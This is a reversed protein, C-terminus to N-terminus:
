CSVYWNLLLAIHLFLEDKIPQLQRTTGSVSAHTKRFSSEFGTSQCRNRCFVASLVWFMTIKRSTCKKGGSTAYVSGSCMYIVEWTCSKRWIEGMPILQRLREPFFFSKPFIDSIPDTIWFIDRELHIEGYLNTCLCLCLLQTEFVSASNAHWFAVVWTPKQCGGEFFHLSVWWFLGQFIGLYM